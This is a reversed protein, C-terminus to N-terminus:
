PQEAEPEAPPPDLPLDERLTYGTSGAHFRSLKIPRNARLEEGFETVVTVEAQKLSLQVTDLRLFRDTERPDNDEWIQGVQVDFPNRPDSM